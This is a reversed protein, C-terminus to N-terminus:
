LLLLCLIAFHDAAPPLDCHLGRLPQQGTNSVNMCYLLKNVVMALGRGAEAEGVAVRFRLLLVPAAFGSAGRWGTRQILNCFTQACRWVGERCDALRRGFLHHALALLQHDPHKHLSPPKFTSNSSAGPTALLQM